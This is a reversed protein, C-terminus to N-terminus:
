ARHMELFIDDLNLDEVEITAPLDRRLNALLEPTVNLLSIRTENGSIQRNLMGPLAFDPPIPGAATIHLRKVQDKLADLAGFYAVAGDKLIAVHSAARELDATIHTSYLIARHADAAVDILATLFDRRAIPDLSAAPEDFVLLEPEHGLSLLIALKQKQGVSLPGVRSELPLEWRKALDDILMHNWRPYFSAVYDITQRVRMWAHLVINQPVYGLRAKAAESLTWANEGLLSATGSDPRVLGLACKIFTTKGSANKGLLGVVMGPELALTLDRLVTKPPYRKVLHQCDLIPNAM